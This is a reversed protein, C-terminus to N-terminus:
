LPIPDPTLHNEIRQTQHSLYTVTGNGAIKPLAGLGAKYTFTTKHSLSGATIGLYALDRTKYAYEDPNTQSFIAQSVQFTLCQTNSDALFCPNGDFKLSPEFGQKAVWPFVGKFMVFTQKSVDDIVIYRPM